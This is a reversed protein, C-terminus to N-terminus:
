LWVNRDADGPYGPVRGTGTWQWAIAKSWGRPLILRETYAAVWLLWQGLRHDTPLKSAVFGPGTYLAPDVGTRLRLETLGTAVHHELDDPPPVDEPAHQEELDICPPLDWADGIVDLLQQVLYRASHRPRWYIYAGTRVGAARAADRHAQYATDPTQGECARLYAERVGSAAIAHWDTRRPDQHSSLDVFGRGPPPASLPV